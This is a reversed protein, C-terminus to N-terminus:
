EESSALLDRLMLGVLIRNMPHNYVTSRGSPHPIVRFVWQHVSQPHILIKKVGGDLALNISRRVEDGLLVITSGRPVTRLIKHSLAAISPPHNLNELDSLLNFRSFGSLYRIAPNRVGVEGLMRMLRYGSSTKPYPALAHRPLPSYPNHLGLLVPKSIM